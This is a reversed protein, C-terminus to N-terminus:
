IEVFEEGVACLESDQELLAQSLAARRTIGLKRFARSLHAEVTRPSLNLQVAIEKNTKGSAALDAIRREQASLPITEGRSQKVTAGSARLEARAREAWPRAGIRDFGEAASGLVVRAENYRRMRRLSMGQALAIRAREFPFEVIGPHDLASQYLEEAETDPATMATTALILAAVRPSVEALNLRVAEEVHARADELRGTHILAEIMDLMQDGVQIYKRPFEGPPSIRIASQYAAEYDGEAFAVRVAIRQATRLMMNMGRPQSWATVETAYRRATELDGRCAALVGLDAMLTQRLLESGHLGAAMELCQAGIEEAQEWQGSAMLDLLVVRGGEIADLSAGHASVQTFATRLPARFEAMADTCYAPYSMMLVYRAPVESLFAAYGALTSRIGKATNAIDDVGIHYLLVAPAVRLKVAAVAANTLQHLRDDDAYGTIYLLLNVLRNVVQEDLEDVSRLAELLRRHTSLAEGDTHIAQYCDALAALAFQTADAEANGLLERAEDIRGARTTVFVAEALLATRRKPDNSLGAAERLWEIAAPIGGLRLSLQAAEGLLDAVDQDPGTTAGALHTARRFLVDPYLGALDRHAARREHLSAQHVVAARVLPHRFVYQGLPNVVLLGMAVAPEGNRIAYRSRDAAAPGATSGDLAARLLDARSAADLRKARGGFVEVLRETLPPAGAGFDFEAASRPLEALALPNGAAATLIATKTAAPLPGGTRDLLSASDADSLPGLPLEAWGAQSFASEHLARRGAVIQVRPDALRRGVASLVEASVSDMWHVDDAVLMLPQNQAAVSLLDLVAAALPLVSVSSNADGGLVPKLATQNQKDLGALSEKLSFVLQNLGGLTYSDESEVGLIRVVRWGSSRASADLHDILSTKGVGPDGCVVVARATDETLARILRSLETRRGVLDGSTPV